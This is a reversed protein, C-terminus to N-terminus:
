GNDVMQDLFLTKLYENEEIEDTRSTKKAYERHLKSTIKLKRGRSNKKLIISSLTATAPM